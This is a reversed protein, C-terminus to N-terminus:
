AKDKNLILHIAWTKIYGGYNDDTWLVKQVNPTNHPCSYEIMWGVNPVQEIGKLTIQRENSLLQVYTSWHLGKFDSPDKPVILTKTKKMKM